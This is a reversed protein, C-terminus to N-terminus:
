SQIPSGAAQWPQSQQKRSESQKAKRPQPVTKKREMTQQRPQPVAKKREMTQQRPQPVAKQRETAQQRPQPVAKQGDKTQGESKRIPTQRSQPKPKLVPQSTPRPVRVKRAEPQRGDKTQGDSQIKSQSESQTAQPRSPQEKRATERSQRNEGQQRERAERTAPSAKRHGTRELGTPRPLRNQAEPHYRAKSTDRREVSDRNPNLSEQQVRDAVYRANGNDNRQRQNIQRRSEVSPQWTNINTNEINIVNVQDGRNGGGGFWNRNNGRNYDHNWGRWNGRYLCNRNWDFDYSLWAGVAFGLGFFLVPQPSYTRVYVVQPDYRPVYIVEPNAPVIRIVEEVVVVKQEPTDKLNGAARAQERLSQIANMVDVPQEVFAEGVASTWDLNDDMWVLVDPYRTLSKVSDDWPQNDSLDPSNGADLYRRALVIDSPVTSAPLMMAILADPYLAVPALLQALEEMTLRVPEIAGAAPGAPTQAGAPLVPFVISLLATLCAVGAARLRFFKAYLPNSITGSEGRTEPLPFHPTVGSVLRPSCASSRPVCPSFVSFKM